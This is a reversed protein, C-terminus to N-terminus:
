FCPNPLTSAYFPLVKIAPMNMDSAEINHSRAVFRKPFIWPNANFDTDDDVEGLSVRYAYDIDSM